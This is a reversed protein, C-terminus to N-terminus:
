RIPGTLMRTIRKREENLTRELYSRDMETELTVGYDLPVGVFGDVVGKRAKVDTFISKLLQTTEARPFEGAKSRDTVVRGGRPGTGKTVAKSINKVVRTELFKTAITVRQRMTLDLRNAVKSVFWEIRVNDKGARSGRRSRAAIM